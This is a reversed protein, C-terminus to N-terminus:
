AYLPDQEAAEVDMPDELALGPRKSSSADDEDEGLMGGRLRGLLHLTVNM